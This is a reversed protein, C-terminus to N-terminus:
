LGEVEACDAAIDLVAIADPTTWGEEELRVRSNNPVFRRLYEIAYFPRANVSERAGAFCRACGPAGMDPSFGHGAIYDRMARLDTAISM